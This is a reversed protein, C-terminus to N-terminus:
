SFETPICDFWLIDYLLRLILKDFNLCARLLNISVCRVLFILLENFSKLFLRWPDWDINVGSDHFQLVNILLNTLISLVLHWFYELLDSLLQIFNVIIMFDLFIGYIFIHFLYNIEIEIVFQASTVRLKVKQCVQDNIELVKKFNFPQDHFLLLLLSFLFLILM